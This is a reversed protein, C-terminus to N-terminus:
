AHCALKALIADAGVVNLRSCHVGAFSAQASDEEPASSRVALPRELWGHAALSAALAARLEARAAESASRLARFVAVPIVIGAPVPFDLAALRLRLAQVLGDLAAPREACGAWM